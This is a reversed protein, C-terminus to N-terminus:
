KVKKLIVAMGGGPALDVTLKGGKIYNEETVVYAEPNDDYHAEKADKYITAEYSMGDKLFDLDIEFQKKHEDTISGLYWDDGKRRAITVHEGVEAHLVRTEDWVLPVDRIFQFADKHAEYNELLDAAMQVPSFLVVYYALQKALTTHVEPHEIGDKLKWPPVLQDRFRKVKVDFIGPTYEIPGAVGRTFPIITTHDPSNGASWANFEMGRVGEWALVNPYTRFIGSALVPEHIFVMIKHQAAKEIINQYYNVMFQGHHHYGSDMNHNAFGLKVYRIGLDEYWQFASDVQELYNFLEGSTEHYGVFEVNHAEAYAAVQPLDFDDYAELYNYPTDGHGWHEFGKNWGEVMVGDINNEAAFDIYRKTRSTTAGHREGAEWTHLGIHLGWWIGVYKIPEIWDTDQLKNPSSLNMLLDSEILDGPKDAIMIARWPTQLSQKAKVKIGDPWPVLNVALTTNNSKKLTIGTYDILDAEHISLWKDGAEITLPTNVSDLESIASRTYIKEYSDYNAPIWWAEYDGGLKFETLENMVNLDRVNEQGPPIHYRFAIGDNYARFHINLLRGPPAQERLTVEMAQYHDMISDKQWWVPSWTENYQNFKVDQVAFNQYLDPQELFDFGMYSTDIMVKGDVEVQYVPRGDVLFFSVENSGDPSRLSTPQPTGCAVVTLSLIALLVKNM